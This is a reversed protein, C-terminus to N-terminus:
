IVLHAYLKRAIFVISNRWLLAGVIWRNIWTKLKNGVLRPFACACTHAKHTRRITKLIGRVLFRRPSEGGRSKIVARFPVAVTHQPIAYFFLVKWRGRACVSRRWIRRYTRTGRYNISILGSSIHLCPFFLHKKSHVRVRNDIWANRAWNILRRDSTSEIFDQKTSSHCFQIQSARCFSSM